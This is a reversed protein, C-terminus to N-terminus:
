IIDLHAKAIDAISIQTRGSIIDEVEVTRDKCDLLIGSFNKQKSTESIPAYLSVKVKQGIYRLFHDENKLPRNIGPSSVELVYSSNLLPYGDLVDGVFGTIKECDSLTISEAHEASQQRDVVVRVVWRGSEKRYQTEVLEFHNEELTPRILKEIEEVARM